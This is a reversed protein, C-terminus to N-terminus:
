LKMVGIFEIIIKPWYKLSLTASYRKKSQRHNSELNTACCTHQDVVKTVQFATTSKIGRARVMWSCNKVLCVVQFREKSSRNTKYQKSQEM